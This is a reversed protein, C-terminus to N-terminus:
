KIDCESQTNCCFMDDVFALLRVVLVSVFSVNTVVFLLLLLVLLVERGRVVLRAFATTSFDITSQPAM